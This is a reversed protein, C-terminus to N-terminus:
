LVKSPKRTVGNIAEESLVHYIQRENSCDPVIHFGTAIQFYFYSNLLPLLVKTTLCTQVDIM